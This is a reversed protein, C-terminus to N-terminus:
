RSLISEIREVIAPDEADEVTECPAEAFMQHVSVCVTEPEPQFGAESALHEGCEACLYARTEFTDGGWINREHCPDFCVHWGVGGSPIECSCRACKDM